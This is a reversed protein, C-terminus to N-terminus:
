DNEIDKRTTKTEVKVRLSSGLSRSLKKDGLRIIPKIVETVVLNSGVVQQKHIRSKQNNVKDPV